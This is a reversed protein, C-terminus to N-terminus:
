EELAADRAALVRMKIKDPDVIGDAQAQEVAKTMAEQVRAARDTDGSLHSGVAVGTAEVVGKTLPEGKEDYGPEAM